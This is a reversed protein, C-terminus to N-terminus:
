FHVARSVEVPWQHDHKSVCVWRITQVVERGLVKEVFNVREIFKFLFIIREGETGLFTCCYSSQHILPAECKVQIVEFSQECQFFEHKIAVLGREARQNVLLMFPALAVVRVPLLIESSWRVVVEVQWLPALLHVIVSAPIAAFVVEVALISV